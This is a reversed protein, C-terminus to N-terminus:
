WLIVEKRAYALYSPKNPGDSFEVAVARPGGNVTDFVIRTVHAGLVVKLNRRQLVDKSLYKHRRLRSEGAKTTSM